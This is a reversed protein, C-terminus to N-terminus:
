WITAIGSLQIKGDRSIIPVDHHLATAAIMRDPFNPVKLVDVRTMTRAISKDFPIESLVSQSDELANVLRTLTEVAIRGREVLYVIEALTISSVGVQNGNDATNQIAQRAISSLRTDNFIYWIVTHTDAVADLM